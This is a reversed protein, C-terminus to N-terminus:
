LSERELATKLEWCFSSPISIKGLERGGCMYRGVGTLMGGVGSGSLYAQRLQQSPGTLPSCEHLIYVLTRALSHSSKKLM